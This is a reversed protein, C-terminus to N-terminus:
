TGKAATRSAEYLQRMEMKSHVDLKRYINSIHTKVTGQSLGCEAEIEARKLGAILLAFIESERPSLDWHSAFVALASDEVAQSHKFLISSQVIYSRV